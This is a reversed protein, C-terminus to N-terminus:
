PKGKDERPARPRSGGRAEDPKRLLDLDRLLELHRLIELEALLRADPTAEDGADAVRQDQVQGGKHAAAGCGLAACLLIVVANRRRGAM